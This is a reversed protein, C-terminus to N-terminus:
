SCKAKPNFQPSCEIGNHHTEATAMDDHIILSILYSLKRSSKHKFFNDRQLCPPHNLYSIFQLRLSSTSFDLCSITFIQYLANTKICM